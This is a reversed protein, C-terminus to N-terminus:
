TGAMPSLGYFRGLENINQRLALWVREAQSGYKGRVMIQNVKRGSEMVKEMQSRTEMYNSTPGFKRRLRNTDGNLDDVADSLEDKTQNARAKRADTNASNAKERKGTKGSNQAAEAGSRANDGRNELYKKFEDVGDEVKKIQEGVAAKSFSGAQSRAYGATLFVLVAAPLIARMTRRAVLMRILKM